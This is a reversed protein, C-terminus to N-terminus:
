VENLSVFAKRKVCIKGDYNIEVCIVLVWKVKVLILGSKGGMLAPHLLGNVLGSEVRNLCTRRAPLSQDKLDFHLPYVVAVVVEMADLGDTEIWVRGLVMM